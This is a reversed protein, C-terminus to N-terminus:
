LMGIMWPRGRWAVLEGGTPHGSRRWARIGLVALTVAGGIRILDLIWRAHAVVLALGVIASISWIATGCAIGAVVALGARRSGGSAHHATAVFDPGPSIVVISWIGALAVLRAVAHVGLHQRM